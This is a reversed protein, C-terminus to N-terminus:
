PEVGLEYVRPFIPHKRGITMMQNMFDDSISCGDGNLLGEKVMKPIVHGVSVSSSWPVDHFQLVMVYCLPIIKRMGSPKDVDM